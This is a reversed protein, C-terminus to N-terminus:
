PKTSPMEYSKYLQISSNPVGPEILFAKRVWSAYGGSLMFTKNEEVTVGEGKGRKEVRPGLMLSSTNFHLSTSKHVCRTLLLYPM